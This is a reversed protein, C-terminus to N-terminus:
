KEQVNIINGNIIRITVNYINLVPKGNFSGLSRFYPITIDGTNTNSLGGTQGNENRIYGTVHREARIAKAHADNFGLGDKQKANQEVIEHTLASASSFSKNNGIAAIDSVDIKSLSYSGGIVNEDHEVLGVSITEKQNLVNSVEDYFASQEATMEGKKGTSVFTVDGNKGIQTTYFGGLAQNSINTFQNQASQAGSVRLTDGLPDSYRIPNNFTFAYLSISDSPKPDVQWFRGLQPDFNRYQADYMNMDFDTNLEIGNFKKKNEPAGNLARSSIGSMALGFPYYHTEEVIPGHVHTVQLNDFFVDINQSENSTYIYLYGSKLVSLPLNHIYASGNTKVQDFGSYGSAIINGNADKAVKFQEDFLIWSVYAKPAGSNSQSSLFSSVSTSLGSSPDQLQPQTVKGSSASAMNGSLALLLDNLVESTSNTSSSGSSWGSAARINYSDGAMVKLLIAPGIKQSGASNKVRAVQNSSTYVPDSFWSPKTYQTSTLNSYYASESNITSTEMQAAPYQDTKSEETLVMRVNGLHDKIFYDYQYSNDSTRLRIRGEETPFFQLADPGSNVKEYVFGGIYTTTTTNAGETVIKQLKNGAADYVYSINGKGTVTIAGPLNLYNYSITSIKKNNDLILNGNGDYSYDTSTKTVPDYKFDGLKSTNDNSGDTVALLKNSNATYAYTLQDIYSSGGPKWGKQSQSIINGNADYSLNSVSFDIGASTNFVAATGTGSVWQNFDAGTLRNVADYSFDYKRKQQDGTSKWVMGAINGNYLPASSGIVGNKDYGLDFGFKSISNADKVYDRNMGLLWGRINYDYTLTEIGQNSNYTPALKKAKLQGLADYGLSSIQKYTTSGNLAKEILTPRGLDDFTNRTAVQYVPDSSTKQHKVHNRLVQGSFSYQSTVVDLGGTVNISQTQIVRGKDDYLNVTSNFQSTTSLIKVRIWTVAGKTLVSRSSPVADANESSSANLYSGYGSPNFASSLGTPTGTYDDYHTETLLENNYSGVTPYANSLSASNRHAAANTSNLGTTTSSPDIIKYTYVPRNFSNEYVTVLWQQASRLNADQTMVLRDRTDYVMQVAGAGPVQKMIMRGRADYEYRFCLEDLMTTNNTADLTWNSTNNMAEVAKPQIVCRLQGLDDYVYYTCLWGAHSSGTSGDDNAATLQVKKLVVKGEKDKFEIVQKGQEDSTINKYLQGEAYTASTYTGFDNTLDNVTWSRVADATKNIYYGMEIGRNSGAWSAGPAMQKLVRNLPSAEYDTKAYFTNEAQSSYWSQNFSLQDAVATTKYLGDSTTAVYPLYKKVERGYQDYEVPVVVDAKVNTETILSGQKIVSQEPRGLGDFYTVSQRVDKLSKGMLLAPNTEPALADWVKIFNRPDTPAPPGQVTLNVTLSVVGTNTSWGEAVIYYTGADLATLSTQGSPIVISANSTSCVPGYDDNVVVSSGSSNLLHLYTDWGSGCTSISITTPGSVTFRYFIDASSQGYDNGYSSTNRYDTYTYTGANYTGMVLPNSMNNGQSFCFSFKLLACVFLGVRLSTKVTKKQNLLSITQM